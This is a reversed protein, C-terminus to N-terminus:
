ERISDIACWVLEAMGHVSQGAQLEEGAEDFAAAERARRAVHLERLRGDGLVDGRELRSEAHAQEVAVGAPHAQGLRPRQVVLAALDDLALEFGGVAQDRVQALVDGAGQADGARGAQAAVDDQRQCAGEHRAVGAHAEVQLEVIVGEVQELVADVDGHAHASQGVGGEATALEPEIRPDRHRARAIERALAHGGARIREGGM